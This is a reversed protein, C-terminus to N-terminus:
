TISEMVSHGDKNRKELDFNFFAAAAVYSSHRIDPYDIEAYIEDANMVTMCKALFFEQALKHIEQRVIFDNEEETEEAIRQLKRRVRESLGKSVVDFDETIIDPDIDKDDITGNRSVEILLDTLYDKLERESLHIPMDIPDETRGFPTNTEADYFVEFIGFGDETEVMQQKVSFM